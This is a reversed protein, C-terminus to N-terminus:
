REENGILRRYKLYPTIGFVEKFFEAKKEFSWEELLIDQSTNLVFKVGDEELFIKLDKIKQKHSRDLADALRLIASLKSVKIKDKVDLAKFNYDEPNPVVTSHYRAINAVIELERSSLGLINSAKILDYSHIYHLNLDVYKGIDHLIAALQLLFRERVGFGLLGSLKDFLLLAKKEVDESHAKNYRYRQAIFIANDLIDKEFVEDNGTQRNIGTMDLIIGDILTVSPCFIINSSTIDLFKKFMMMSPLLIEASDESIGYDKAIVKPSKYLIENYLAEFEKKYIYNDNAYKNKKHCISSILRIEGGVAIFNKSINQEKHISLGDITGAIYEELIKHFNITKGEIDSLVERVRLSGLKVNYSMNLMGKLYVSVQVSGFGIDVIVTGQNKIESFGDMMIGLAKLNLFREESNDLVNVEFGTRIRIQEIIYAKNSAERLASTAIIQYKKISYEQLKRKFGLLIDCVEVVSDYSIKGMAFSDRGLWIPKRLQEIVSISGNIVEVIRMNLAHSGIYIVCFLSNEKSHPM